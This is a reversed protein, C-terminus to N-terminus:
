GRVSPDAHSLSVRDARSLDRVYKDRSPVRMVGTHERPESDGDRSATVFARGKVPVELGLDAIRAPAAKTIHVDFELLYLTDSETSESSIVM